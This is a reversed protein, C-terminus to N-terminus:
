KNKPEGDLAWKYSKWGKKQGLVRLNKSVPLISGIRGDKKKTKTM